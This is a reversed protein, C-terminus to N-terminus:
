NEENGENQTGKIDEDTQLFRPNQKGGERHSMTFCTVPTTESCSEPNEM